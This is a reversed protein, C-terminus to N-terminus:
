RIEVDIVYIDSETETVSLYAKGNGITFGFQVQRTPDDYRLLLRPQGGEAPVAYLGQLGTMDDARFYVVQGDEQSWEAWTLDDLGVSRANLLAREVGELSVIGLKEGTAFVIRNGDPSWRPFGGGERTLQRPASWEGGLMERTMVWVGGGRGRAM